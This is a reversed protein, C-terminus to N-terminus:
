LEIRGDKSDQFRDIHRQYTTDDLKPPGFQM